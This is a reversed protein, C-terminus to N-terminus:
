ISSLCKYELIPDEFSKRVKSRQKISSGQDVQFGATAMDLIAKTKDGGIVMWRGLEQQEM